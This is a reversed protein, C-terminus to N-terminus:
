LNLGEAKIVDVTSNVLLLVWATYYVFFLGIALLAVGGRARDSAMTPSSLSAVEDAGGV